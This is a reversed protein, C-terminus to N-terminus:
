VLKFKIVYVFCIFLAAGILTLGWWIIKTALSQLVPRWFSNKSEPTSNEIHSDDKCSDTIMNNNGIVSQNIDGNVSVHQSNDIYTDIAISKSPPNTIENICHNYSRDIERLIDKSDSSMSLERDTRAHLFIQAFLKLSPKKPFVCIGISTVRFDTLGFIERMFENKDRSSCFMDGIYFDFSYSFYRTNDKIPELIKEMLEITQQIDTADNIPFPWKKSIKYEM